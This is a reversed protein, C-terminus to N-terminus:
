GFGVVRGNSEVDLDIGGEYLSKWILFSLLTQYNILYPNLTAFDPILMPNM